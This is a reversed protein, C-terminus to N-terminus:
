VGEGFYTTPILGAGVMEQVQDWVYHGPGFLGYIADDCNLDWYWGAVRTSDLSVIDFTYTPASM